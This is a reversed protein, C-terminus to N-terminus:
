QKIFKMSYNVKSGTLKLVYAGPVLNSCDVQTETLGPKVKIEKILSGSISYILM